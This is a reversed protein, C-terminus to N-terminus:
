EETTLAEPKERDFQLGVEQRWRDLANMNGLSDDWTMCPPPAQREALHRAVVDVELTYLGPGGPIEIEEAEQGARQLRITSPTDKARGPFWPNPVVLNGESGWIRLASDVAVQSGCALNALIDGDFRAAAVSWEDVRSTQGIHACGKVEVPEAFDRGQAAGALLRAMSMTYCGVDMIAGGAVDNRLRINDYKPGLNYSFSAQILRVEGVAGERILGALRATQPSCRYMFAEMLFVDHRRAAEVLATAEGFNTTLPKECLMHKGAQACRVAWEAHLHNPLSVYVAEVQPDGLLADYSGHRNPAQYKEGFADASEQSRSGVAALRGTESANIAEALVGAIKGTGLIGWGIERTTM